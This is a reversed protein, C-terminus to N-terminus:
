AYDVWDGSADMGRAGGRRRPGMVPDVMSPAHGRLPLGMSGVDLVCAGSLPGRFSDSVDPLVGFVRVCGFVSDVIRSDMLAEVSGRKPIKYYYDTDFLLLVITILM